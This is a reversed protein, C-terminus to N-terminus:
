QKVTDERVEISGSTGRVANTREGPWTSRGGAADGADSGNVDSSSSIATMSANHGTHGVRGAKVAVGLRRSYSLM